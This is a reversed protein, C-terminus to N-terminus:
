PSTLIILKFSCPKLELLDQTLKSLEVFFMYAMIQPEYNKLSVPIAGSVVVNQYSVCVMGLSVLEYAFGLSFSALVRRM